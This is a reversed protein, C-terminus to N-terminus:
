PTEVERTAAAVRQAPSTAFTPQQVVALSHTQATPAARYVPKLTAVGAASVIFLAVVVSGILQRRAVTQIAAVSLGVDGIADDDLIVEPENVGSAADSLRSPGETSCPQESRRM